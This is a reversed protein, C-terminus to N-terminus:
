LLLAGFIILWCILMNSYNRFSWTVNYMTVSYLKFNYYYKVINSNKSYQHLRPSWSLCKFFTIIGVSVYFFFIKIIGFKQGTMYSIYASQLIDQCQQILASLRGHAAWCWWVGGDEAEAPDEDHWHAPVGCWLLGAPKQRCANCTNDM